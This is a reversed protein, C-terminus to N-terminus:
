HQTSDAAAAPPDVRARAAELIDVWTKWRDRPNPSRREQHGSTLSAVLEETVVIKTGPKGDEFHFTVELQVAAMQNRVPMQGADMTYLAKDKDQKVLKLGANEVEERLVQLITDRATSVFTVTPRQAQAVSALCLSLLTYVGWGLHSVSNKM